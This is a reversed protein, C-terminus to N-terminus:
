LAGDIIHYVPAKEIHSGRSRSKVPCPSFTGIMTTWSQIIQGSLLIGAVKNGESILYTADCMGVGPSQESSKSVQPQDRGMGNIYKVAAKAAIRGEAFSGSSFKHATGGIIDGADFLGEVTMMRNYGWQYEAPAYDEPDSAAMPQHRGAGGLNQGTTPRCRPHPMLQRNRIVLHTGNHNELSFKTASGTTSDGSFVSSGTLRM